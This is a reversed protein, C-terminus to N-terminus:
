HNILSSIAIAAKDNANQRLKIHWQNFTKKLYTTHANQELLQLTEASLRAPTAETQLIEPILAQNALINPLSCWPTKIMRKAIQWTLWSVKYSVVMPKKNLMGELAATGSALLLVDAAAMV